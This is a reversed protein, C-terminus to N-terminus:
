AMVERRRRWAALGRAAFWIVAVFLGETVLTLLHLPSHWPESHHFGFFVSPLQIRRDHIPWLLAVGRGVTFADMVVHSGYAALGIATMRWAGVGTLKGAIPGFAMAFIGAAAFSHMFAGHEKRAEGTLLKSVVFDCDPAVLAFLVLGTMLISRRPPLATRLLFYVGAHALPSPM